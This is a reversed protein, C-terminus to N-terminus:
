VIIEQMVAKLGIDTRFQQGSFEILNVYNYTRERALKLNDAQGIVSLVRGGNTVIAGVDGDSYATGAQFVVAGKAVAAGIGKILDGKHSTEPYGASALVVNCYYNTNWKIPGVQDLSAKAASVLLKSLPTQLAQLVVQTEPDGFRTNFEIVKVGDATYVLGAFLVGVFPTGRSAMQTVIPLAIHNLCWQSTGEALWDLPTYAGMGGTNPGTDGDSIRKFDQAPQLPIATKGDCIFFQSFEPGALYEEVIVFGGSRFVASAHAEAESKKDTVIVGKGACLGDAKIVYPVDSPATRLYAVLESMKSCKVSAGTPVGAAHMIDKAYSKSSELQAAAKTPGFVLLDPLEAHLADVVGAALPAEPGVVVLEIQLKQVAQCILQADVELVGPIEQAVEWIGPNGGISYLEHAKENNLSSLIAHERAGSGIVLIKMDVNYVM